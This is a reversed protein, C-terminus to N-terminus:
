ALPAPSEDNKGDIEAETGAPLEGDGNCVICLGRGVCHGCREGDIRGTGKCSWCLRSGDCEYCLEYGADPVTLPKSRDSMTLSWVCTRQKPVPNTPLSKSAVRRAEATSHMLCIASDFSGIASDFPVTSLGCIRMDVV